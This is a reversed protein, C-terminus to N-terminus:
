LTKLVRNVEQIMEKSINLHTVLRITNDSLALTLINKKNLIDVYYQAKNKKVNFIIINTKVKLINNVWTCKELTKEIMKANEHDIRLKKINNELAFIGCAALYGVQRM